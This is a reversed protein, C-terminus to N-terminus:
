GWGDISGLFRMFLVNQKCMLPTPVPVGAANARILNRYEKSTWLEVQERKDLKQFKINHYRSDGDVYSGRTKFEQIQKFVKVAVDFGGSGNSKWGGGRNGM